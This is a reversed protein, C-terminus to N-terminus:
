VSKEFPPGSKIKMCLFMYVSNVPFLIMVRYPSETVSENLKNQLAHVTSRGKKNSVSRKVCSLQEGM